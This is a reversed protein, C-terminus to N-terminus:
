LQDLSFKCSSVEEVLDPRSFTKKVRKKQGRGSSHAAEKQAIRIESELQAVQAARDRKKKANAAAIKKSEAKDAAVDAPSRRPKPLDVIGPNKSSRTTRTPPHM